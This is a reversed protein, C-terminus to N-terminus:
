LLNTIAKAPIEMKSFAFLKKGLDKLSAGIHYVTGDVILFRDHAHQYTHIDIQPYDEVQYVKGDAATTAFKAVVPMADLEESLANNIHKGITKIDRSFLEALQQRNLWVTEDEIRVELKVSEDLQYLIIEGQEM